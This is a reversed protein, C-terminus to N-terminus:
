KRSRVPGKAAAEREARVWDLWLDVGEGTRCSLELMSVEPNLGRVYGLFDERSFNTAALLDIKNLVVCDAKHFAVPYKIPKDDGEPTSAIVVRRHEGLDFEAPCVLNGVNEIFLVDLAALDFQELADLIQRASLHCGGGTNIQYSPIGARQIRQADRDTALDGEIVAMRLEGGLRRATEELLTTKGSGPSSMLNPVFVRAKRYREVLEVALRDSEAVVRKALRISKAM